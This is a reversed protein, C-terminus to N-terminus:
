RCSLSKAYLCKMLMNQYNKSCASNIVHFPNKYNYFQEDFRFSVVAQHITSTPVPIHIPASEQHDDTAPQLDLDEMILMEMDVSADDSYDRCNIFSGLDSVDADAEPVEETKSMDSLDVGAGDSYATLTTDDVPMVPAAILEASNLLQERYHLL